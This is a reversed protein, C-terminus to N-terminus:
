KLMEIKILNAEFEGTLDRHEKIFLFSFFADSIKCRPIYKNKRRIFNHFEDIPSIHKGTLAPTRGPASRPGVRGGAPERREAAFIQGVSPLTFKSDWINNRNRLEVNNPSAGGFL